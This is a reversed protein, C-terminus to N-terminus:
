PKQFVALMRDPTDAGNGAQINQDLEQFGVSVLEAKIADVKLLRRQPTALQDGHARAEHVDSTKSLYWLVGDSDLDYAPGFNVTRDFTMTHIVLLGGPVLLEFMRRLCTNRDSDFIICHLFSSDIILDFSSPLFAHTLFDGAVFKAPSEIEAAIMRAADIATASIDIGLVTNAHMSAEGSKGAFHFAVPGTGCGLDLVRLRDSSTKPLFPALIQDLESKWSFNLLDEITEKKGWGFYGQDILQQYAKEHEEYYKMINEDVIKAPSVRIL